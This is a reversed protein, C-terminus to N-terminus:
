VHARGIQRGGAALNGRQAPLFRYLLGDVRDESEYVIGTRPDVAAAEHYFRGMAKLPVPPTLRPTASAPVEFIFGHDQECNVNLDSAVDVTEECTLWSNWPTRGGACNRATGALSLFQKEVKGSVPDYVITSRFLM